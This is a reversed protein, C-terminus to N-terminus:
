RMWSAYLERKKQQRSQAQNSLLRLMEVALDDTRYEPIARNRKPSSPEYSPPDIPLEEVVVVKKARPKSPGKNAAGKPRGKARAKPKAPLEALEEPLDLLDPQIDPQTDLIDTSIEPSDLPIEKVVEGM